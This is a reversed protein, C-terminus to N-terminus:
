QAKTEPLAKRTADDHWTRIRKQRPEPTEFAAAKFASAATRGFLMGVLVWRGTNLYEVYQRKSMKAARARAVQTELGPEGARLEIVVVRRASPLIQSLALLCQDVEESRPCRYGSSPATSRILEGGSAMLAAIM